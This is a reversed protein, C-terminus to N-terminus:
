QTKYISTQPPHLRQMALELDNKYNINIFWEEKYGPMHTHVDVITANQNRLIEYLRYAGNQIAQEFVDKTDAPWLSVLPELGKHSRAVVPHGQRVLPYLFRYVSADLLPMDVPMVALWPKSCYHLATYIGCVPGCGSVLDPHVASVGEPREEMRGILIVDESVRRAIDVAHELLTKRALLAETKPAGFRRSKGGAIIAISVQDLM